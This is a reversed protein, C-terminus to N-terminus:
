PTFANGASATVTDATVTSSVAHLAAGPLVATLLVVVLPAVEVARGDRAPVHVVLARGAM